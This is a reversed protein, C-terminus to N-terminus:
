RKVPASKTKEIHPWRKDHDNRFSELSKFRDGYFDMVMKMDKLAKTVAEALKLVADNNENQVDINENMKAIDRKYTATSVCGTLLAAMMIMGTKKILSHM